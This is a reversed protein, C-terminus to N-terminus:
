REDKLEYPRNDPFWKRDPEFTDPLAKLWSEDGSPPATSEAPVIEYAFSASDMNKGEFYALVSEDIQEVVRRHETATVSLPSYFSSNGLSDFSAVSFAQPVPIRYFSCFHMIRLAVSGDAAFVATPRHKRLLELFAADSFGHVHIYMDSSNALGSQRLGDLWGDRREQNSRAKFSGFVAAIRVHGLGALYRVVAAATTRDDSDFSPFDPYPELLCGRFAAKLQHRRCFDACLDRQARDPLNVFVYRIQNSLIERFTAEMDEGCYIRVGYGHQNFFRISHFYQPQMHFLSTNNETDPVIMAITSSNFGRSITAASLNRRYHLEAAAAKIRERVQPSVEKARPHDRLVFSVWCASVGAKKAIDYITAGMSMKRKM